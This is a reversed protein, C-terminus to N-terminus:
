FNCFRTGLADLLGSNKLVRKQWPTQPEDFHSKRVKHDNLNLWLEKTEERYKLFTNWLEVTDDFVLVEFAIAINYVFRGLFSSSTLLKGPQTRKHVNNNKPTHQYDVLLRNVGSVFDHFMDLSNISWLSNLLYKQVAKIDNAVEAPNQTNMESAFSTVSNEILKLIEKLSPFYLSILETQTERPDNHEILQVLTSLIPPITSPPLDKYCYGIILALIPIKSTALIPTLVLGDESGEM